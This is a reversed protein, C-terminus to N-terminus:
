EVKWTQKKERGTPEADKRAMSGPQQAAAPGKGQSGSGQSGGSGQSTTPNQLTKKGMIPSSPLGINRIFSRIQQTKGITATPKEEIM